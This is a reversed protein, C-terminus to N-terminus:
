IGPLGDGAGPVEHDPRSEPREVVQALYLPEGLRETCRLAM